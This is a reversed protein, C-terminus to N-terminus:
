ENLAVPKEDLVITKKSKGSFYDMAVEAAGFSATDSVSSRYDSDIESYMNHYKSKVDNYWQFSESRFQELLEPHEDAINNLEGPDIELDFIAEELNSYYYHYSYKSDTRALCDLDQWCATFAVEREGSFISYGSGPYENEVGLLSLLTPVVDTHSVVNQYKKPNERTERSHIIFPVRIGERYVVNNHAWQKHEGFGEGHDALVVFITDEYLGAERYQDFLKKVFDDTYKVSNLYTDLTEEEVYRKRQFDSPPAYGHHTTMTLYAAIFPKKRGSIWERSPELMIDDEYGFYNVMEHNEQPLGEMAFHDAFGLKSVLTARNEFTETASEFFVSDYGQSSLITPLCPVPMGLTSSFIPFGLYPEVGCNIAVLSKSTHPVTTITQDFVFSSNALEALFPTTDGDADPHLSTSKLRISELLILVINRQNESGVSKVIPKVSPWRKDNLQYFDEAPFAGSMWLYAMSNYRTSVKDTRDAPPVFTCVMGVVFVVSLVKLMRARSSSQAGLIRRSKLILALFILVCPAAVLLLWAGLQTAWPHDYLMISYQFTDYSYTKGLKAAVRAGNGSVFLLPTVFLLVLMRYRHDAKGTRILLIASWSLLFAVFGAEFRYDNMASLWSEEELLTRSAFKNGLTFSAIPLLILTFIFLNLYGIQDRFARHAAAM